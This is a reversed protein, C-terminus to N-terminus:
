MLLTVRVEMIERLGSCRGYLVALQENQFEKNLYKYDDDAPTPIRLITQFAKLSLLNFCAHCPIPEASDKPTWTENKLKYHSPLRSEKTCRTSFVADLRRDIRWKWENTQAVKVLRKRPSSLNSFKKGYMEHAIATVSKGGGGHAGTRDLYTAIDEKDCKRLGPCPMRTVPENKTNKQSSNGSQSTSRQGFFDIVTGGSRISTKPPGKCTKTHRRFNSTNYPEKMTYDKGCKSHRVTKADLILAKSDIKKITTEFRTERAPNPIFDGSKFKDNRIRAFLTSRSAGEKASAHSSSAADAQNTSPKGVKPTPGPISTLTAKRKSGGGDTKAKGAEVVPVDAMSSTVPEELASSAWADSSPM